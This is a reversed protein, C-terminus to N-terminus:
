ALKEKSPHSFLYFGKKGDFFYFMSGLWTLQNDSNCNLINPDKSIRSNEGRIDAISSLKLVM